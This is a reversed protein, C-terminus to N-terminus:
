VRLLLFSSLLIYTFFLILLRMWSFSFCSSPINYQIARSRVKTSLVLSINVIFFLNYLCDTHGLLCASVSLSVIRLRGYGLCIVEVSDAAWAGPPTLASKRQFSTQRSSSVTVWWGCIAQNKTTLQWAGRHM